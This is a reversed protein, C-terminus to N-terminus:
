DEYLEGDPLEEPPLEWSEAAEEWAALESKLTWDGRGDRRFLLYYGRDGAGFIEVCLLADDGALGVRSLSVVPMGRRARITEADADSNDLLLRDAHRDIDFGGADDANASRYAAWAAPPVAVKTGRCDSPRSVVVVEGMRALVSDVLVDVVEQERPLPLDQQCGALFVAVALCQPIGHKM